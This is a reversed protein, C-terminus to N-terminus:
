RAQPSLGHLEVHNQIAQYIEIAHGAAARFLTPELLLLEAEQRAAYVSFASPHVLKACLKTLCAFEDALGVEASLYKLSYLREPSAERETRLEILGNLAADVAPPVLSPDNRALWTKFSDLVEIGDGILAAAFRRAHDESGLAYQTYIDLELLNRSAWAVLTTSNNLGTKLHRYERIAASLFAVLLDRFWASDADRTELEVAFGQAEALAADLAELEGSTIM